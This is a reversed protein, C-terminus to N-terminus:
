STSDVSGLHEVSGLLGIEQAIDEVKCDQHTSVYVEIQSLTSEEFSSFLQKLFDHDMKAEIALKIGPLSKLKEKVGGRVEGIVEGELKSEEKERALENREDIERERAKEYAQKRASDWNVMMMIGYAEKIVEDIDSPVTILSGCKDLFNLWQEKIGLRDGEELAVKGAKYLRAFKNIEYYKWNMVNGPVEVGLEIIIPVVTKEYLDDHEISYRRAFLDERSIM